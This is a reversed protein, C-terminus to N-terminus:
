RSRILRIVYALRQNTERPQLIWLFVFYATVAYVVKIFLRLWVHVDASPISYDIIMYVAVTLGAALAPVTYVTITDPHVVKGLSRYLPILGVFFSICAAVATGMAGYFFTLPWGFVVLATLQTGLMVIARSPQGVATLLASANDWLPRIVSVIVLVRLIPAAPLWQIGYAAVILDPASVLLVVSIPLAMNASIWFMMSVTRQLRATDNQLKSYTFYASNVILASLLLTPWQSTRYARDYFGLAESSSFTGLYFNDVQMGMAGIFASMGVIGGFSLLRQLTSRRFKWEFQITPRLRIWAFIWIGIQSILIMTVYQAILSWNGRGVAALGFAPLYSLPLAISVITSGPRTWLHKSLIAGIVSGFSEILSMVAMVITLAIVAASYGFYAMPFAALLVLALSALGLGVDLSVYTGIAANDDEPLQAFAYTLGFKGRLQLLMFFFMALAFDGYDSPVLMRTLAINAVFGFGITWYSASTVWLGSRVVRYALPIEKSGQEQEKSASRPEETM